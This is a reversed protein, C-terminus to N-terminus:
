GSSEKIEEPSEKVRIENETDEKEGFILVSGEGDKKMSRIDSIKLSIYKGEVNTLEVFGEM